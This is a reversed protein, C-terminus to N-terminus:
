YEGLTKQTLIRSQKLYKHMPQKLRTKLIELAENLTTCKTPQKRFANRVNERVEFVGVPITYNENVERFIVCRAQKRLINLAEAVGHRGAYYGGGETKAYDSRGWYPEYEHSIDTGQQQDNDPEWSEFQEFEWAGPLLLIEFHNFLYNNSYITPQVIHSNQKVEKLFEDAVMRDTATIGWKTPVLKREEGLVGATLIKQIYHYDFEEMLEPLAERVKLKEAVIEDIKAPIVPNGAIEFKKIEGSPGSPQHLSSFTLSFEIPKKFTTEIDPQNISTAIEFAKEFPAKVNRREMGRVLSIRSQIIADYNLGYLDVPSDIPKEELSVLPGAFVNPYNYEGVFVNPPTPGFVSEGIKRQPKDLWKRSKVWEFVSKRTKEGVTSDFSIRAAM